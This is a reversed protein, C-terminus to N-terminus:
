QLSKARMCQCSVWYHMYFCPILFHQEPSYESHVGLCQTVESQQFKGAVFCMSIGKM